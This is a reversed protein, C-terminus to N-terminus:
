KLKKYIRREDFRTTFYEGDMEFDGYSVGVLRRYLLEGAEIDWQIKYDIIGKTKGVIYKGGGMFDIYVNSDVNLEQISNIYAIKRGSKKKVKKLTYTNKGSAYSIPSNTTILIRLSDFTTIWSEGVAKATINNHVMGFPDFFNHKGSNIYEQEFADLLYDHEKKAPEIHDVWGASDIYLYCPVDNMALWFNNEVEENGVKNDTKMDTYTLQMKHFEGEKGLYEKIQNLYSGYQIYGVGPINFSLEGEYNYESKYGASLSKNKFIYKENESCFVFSIFFVLIIRMSIKKM